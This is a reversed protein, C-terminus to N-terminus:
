GTTEALVLEALIKLRRYYTQAYDDLTDIVQLAKQCRQLAKIRPEDLKQLELFTSVCGAIDTDLLMADYGNIDKGRISAPFSAVLHEDWLRRIEDM